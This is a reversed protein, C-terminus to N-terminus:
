KLTHILSDTPSLPSFIWYADSSAIIIIFKWKWGQSRRRQQLHFWKGLPSSALSYGLQLVTVNSAHRCHGAGHPAQIATTARNHGSSSGPRTRCKRPVEPYSWPNTGCGEIARGRARFVSGSHSGAALHNRDNESLSTADFGLRQTVQSDLASSREFANRWTTTPTSITMTTNSNNM